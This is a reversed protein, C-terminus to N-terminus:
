VVTETAERVTMRVQRRALDLEIAMVVFIGYDTTAGTRSLVQLTDWRLKVFGGMRPQQTMTLAAELAMTIEFWQRPYRLLELLRVAESAAVASADVVTFRDLERATPHKNLIDQDYAQEVLWPSALVARDAQTVAADLDSTIVTHRPRYKVRVRYVPAGRGPGPDAIATVSLLSDLAIVDTIAPPELHFVEIGWEDAGTLFGSWRAFGHFAGISICLADVVEAAPTTDNVWVGATPGGAQEWQSDGALYNPAASAGATDANANIPGVGITEAVRVACAAAGAGWGLDYSYADCTVLGAPATGLRLFLGSTSDLVLDYTGATPTTSELSALSARLTGRTVPFGKVRVETIDGTGAGVGQTVQYVYKATDVCLPAIGRVMGYLWPRPRGEYDNSVIPRSLLSDNARLRLRAVNRDVTVQGVSARLVEVFTSRAADDQGYFVSVQQGDFGYYPWGSLAGDANSLVIEGYNSRIAGVLGPPLESRVLGPNTVRAEYPTNAPTDAAATIYAGTSYRLSLSQVTGDVEVMFAGLTSPSYWDWAGADRLYPDDNLIQTLATTKAIKVEMCDMAGASSTHNLAMVFRMATAAASITYATGAGFDVTYTTWGTGPTVANVPVVSLSYPSGGGLPGTADFLGVGAYAVGDSLANRRLKITLRYTDVSNVPILPRNAYRSGEAHPAGSRLFKPWVKAAFEVLFVPKGM